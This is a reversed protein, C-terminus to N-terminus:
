DKKPPYIVVSGSRGKILRPRTENWLRAAKAYEAQEAELLPRCSGEGTKIRLYKVFEEPEFMNIKKHHILFSM